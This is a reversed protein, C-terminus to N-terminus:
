GIATGWPLKEIDAKFEALLAPLRDELWQKDSLQEITADPAVASDRALDLEGQKAHYVTNAIYHLPGDTSVLHWKILEAYEPFTERIADHFCGGFAGANRAWSDVTISFTNFGNRCRDDYRIVVKGAGHGPFDRYESHIERKTQILDHIVSTKM